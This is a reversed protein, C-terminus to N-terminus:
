NSQTDDGPERSRRRAAEIREVLGDIAERASRTLARGRYDEVIRSEVQSLYEDLSPGGPPAVPADLRDAAAFLNIWRESRRGLQVVEYFLRGRESGTQFISIIAAVLSVPILLADRLGDIVLKGQLIIADRVITGRDPEAPPLKPTADPTEM